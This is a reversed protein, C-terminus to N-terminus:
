SPYDTRLLNPNACPSPTHALGGFWGHCQVLQYLPPHVCEPVRQVQTFYSFKCSCTNVCVFGKVGVTCICVCVCVCMYMVTSSGRVQAAGAVASARVLPCEDVMCDSLAAFQQTMLEDQEETDTDPDQVHTLM